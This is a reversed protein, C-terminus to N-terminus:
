LFDNCDFRSLKLYETNCLNAKGKQITFGVLCKLKKLIKLTNLNYSGHPYCISWDNITGNVSKIFAMNKVIQENQNKYNLDGLRLHDYGHAGIHMGNKKLFKIEKITMYLNNAFKKENSSVFIKFLKTCCDKRIKEPLKKQLLFKVFSTKKNDFRNKNVFNKELNKLNIKQKLKYNNNLFYKIKDLILNINKAGNLIFHIKNVDLIKRYKASEVSPFFCGQIKRKKLEPYVYKIHDKYGDDFTLLLPKKVLKKKYKINNKLDDYSIFNYKNKLSEIQKIFKKIELGKLNPYKSKKIPRVYHYTIINIKQM